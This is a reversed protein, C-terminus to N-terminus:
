IINLAPHHDLSEEWSQSALLRPCDSATRKWMKLKKRKSLTKHKLWSWGWMMIRRGIGGLYSLNCVHAVVGLDDSTYKSSILMTFNPSKSFTFQKGYCSHTVDLWTFPQAPCFVSRGQTLLFNMFVAKVQVTVKFRVAEGPQWYMMYTQSKYVKM